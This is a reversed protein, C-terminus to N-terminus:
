LRVEWGEVAGTCGTLETAAGEATAGCAAAGAVSWVASVAARAESESARTRGASGTGTGTATRAFGLGHSDPMTGTLRGSVAAVFEPMAAIIIAISSSVTSHM